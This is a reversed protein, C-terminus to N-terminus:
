QNNFHDNLINPPMPMFSNGVFPFQNHIYSNYCERVNMYIDANNGIEFGEQLLVFNEGFIGTNGNNLQISCGGGGDTIQQYVKPPPHTALTANCVTKSTDCAARLQYVRVYDINTEYPYQTNVSDIPVCFNSAPSDTDIILYQPNLIAADNNVWSGRLVDDIYIDIGKPHWHGAATHWQGGSVYTDNDIFRTSIVSENKKRRHITSTYKNQTANIEFIDIESYQMLQSTDQVYGLLWFTPTYANAGNFITRYAYKFKIEFYGYKFIYRSNLMGRMYKYPLSDVTWPKLHGYANKKIIKMNCTGGSQKLLSTDRNFRVGSVKHNPPALAACGDGSSLWTPYINSDFFHGWPYHTMWKNRDLTDLNFEDSFVLEYAPDDKPLITQAHMNNCLIFVLVIIISYSRFHKM